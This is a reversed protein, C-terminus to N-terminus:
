TNIEPKLTLIWLPTFCACLLVVSLDTLTSFTGQGKLEFIDARACLALCHQTFNAHAEECSAQCRCPLWVSRRVVVKLDFCCLMLCMLCRGLQPDM